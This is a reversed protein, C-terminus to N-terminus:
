EDPNEMPPLPLATATTERRRREGDAALDALALRVVRWHVLRLIPGYFLADAVLKGALAGLPGGILHLGGGICLPRFVLADMSEAAGFEVFISRIAAMASRRDLRRGAQAANRFERRLDRVALVGYFWTMEAFMGAYAAAVVSGSWRQTLVAVTVAAMTGTIESLGYRRRWQRLQNHWEAKHGREAGDGAAARIVKLVSSGVQIVDGEYLLLPAIVQSGNVLTGYRSRDVIVPGGPTPVIRAHRRSVESGELRVECDPLRGIHVARGTLSLVRSDHVLALPTLM